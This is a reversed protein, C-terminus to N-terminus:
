SNQGHKIHNMRGWRKTKQTAYTSWQKDKTEKEKPWQPTQGEIYPKQIVWKM